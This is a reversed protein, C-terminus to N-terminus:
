RRGTITTNAGLRVDDQFNVTTAKITGSQLLTYENPLGNGANDTTLSALPRSAASRPLSPRPAAPM